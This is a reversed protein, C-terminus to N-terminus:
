PRVRCRLQWIRPRAPHPRHQITTPSRKSPRKHSPCENESTFTATRLLRGDGVARSVVHENQAGSQISSYHKKGPEGGWEDEKKWKGRRRTQGRRAWTWGAEERLDEQRVGQHSEPEGRPTRFSVSKVWGRARDAGWAQTGAIKSDRPDERSKESGTSELDNGVERRGVEAHCEM